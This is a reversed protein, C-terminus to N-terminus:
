ADPEGFMEMFDDKEVVGKEVLYSEHDEGMEWLKKANDIAKTEFDIKETPTINQSESFTVPRLGIKELLENIPELYYDQQLTEIMENFIQKETDGTSNLGRVSEGVLIALPIGTVMALRRLTIQDVSDLNTLTQDINIVDDDADVLGAGFISRAKETLSFFSLIDSEQKSQLAEKFGKVKYFITSNKDIITASAREVVADNVIQQYILEFEAIGGYRYTPLDFEPPEVYRFDVVRSYHFNHGKVNYFEPRNYRNSSLDRSIDIVTVMDGSFVDLKYKKPPSTAPTSLDAGAENILIIGRGFGLMFGAAKKIAPRLKAQFLKKEEPTEFVLPEKLAYGNKIRIIKNGLGTRWISRLEIDSIKVSTIENANSASRTNALSSLLNKLGDIFKM